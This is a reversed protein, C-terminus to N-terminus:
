EFAKNVSEQEVYEIAKKDEIIMVNFMEIWYMMDSYALIDFDELFISNLMLTKVRGLSFRDHGETTQPMYLKHTRVFSLTETNDRYKYFINERIIALSVNYALRANLLFIEDSLGEAVEFRFIEYEMIAAAFCAAVKHIDIRRDDEGHHNYHFRQKLSDRTSEYLSKFESVDASTNHVSFEVDKNGEKAEQYLKKSMPVIINNWIEDFTIDEM